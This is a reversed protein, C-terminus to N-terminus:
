SVLVEKPRQIRRRLLYFLTRYADKNFPNNIIAQRTMHWAQKYQGLDVQRAAYVQYQKSRWAKDVELRARVQELTDLDGEKLWDTGTDRQRQFLEDMLALKSLSYLNFTQTLSGPTLRYYYVHTPDYYFVFRDAIENFLYIDACFADAFYPHYGEVQKLAERRIMLSGSPFYVDRTRAIIRTPRDHRPKQPHPVGDERVHIYESIVADAGHAQLFQYQHEMRIDVMWDDSDCICVYAGNALTFLYNITFLFGKNQNNRFVRINPHKSAYGCIVEWTNDTSCDDCIVLEKNPYTQRLFSEIGTAILHARNYATM